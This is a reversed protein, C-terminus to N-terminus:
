SFYRGYNKIKQLNSIALFHNEEPTFIQVKKNKIIRKKEKNFTNNNKTEFIENNKNTFKRSYLKMDIMKSSLPSFKNKIFINNDSKKSKFFQMNM